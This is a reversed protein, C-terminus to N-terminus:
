FLLMPHLPNILQLQQPWACVRPSIPNKRAFIKPVNKRGASREDNNKSTTECGGVGAQNWINEEGHPKKKDVCCLVCVCRCKCMIRAHMLHHCRNSTNKKNNVIQYAILFYLMTHTPHYTHLLSLFSAVYPFFLLLVCM